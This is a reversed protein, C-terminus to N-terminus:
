ERASPLQPHAIQGLDSRLPNLYIQLQSGGCLLQMFDPTHPNSVVICSLCVQVIPQERDYNISTRYPPGRRLVSPRYNLSKDTRAQHPFDTYRGQTLHKRKSAGRVFGYFETFTFTQFYVALGAIDLIKPNM